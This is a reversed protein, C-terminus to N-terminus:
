QSIHGLRGSRADARYAAIFGSIGAGLVALGGAIGLASGAGFSNYSDPGFISNGVYGAFLLTTQAGAAALLAFLARERWVISLGVIFVAGAAVALPELAFWRLDLDVANDYLAYRYGAAGGGNIPVFVGAVLLAAGVLALARAAWITM